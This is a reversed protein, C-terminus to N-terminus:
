STLSQTNKDKWVVVSEIMERANQQGTISNSGLMASLETLREEGHLFRVGTTMRGGRSEKEVQLHVDGFAALQPLHTVCLVQHNQAVRWLKEGVVRGVRGGIGVDIEDFILIPVEDVRSLVTKLALMLRATEGGSAVRSLPRLPEGPNTAVMFEVRDLGTADFALRREGVPAGDATEIQRIAVAFRTDGMRLADLEAEVQQSLQEGAERRRQSMAAGLRGIETLLQVEEAELHDIQEDANQLAALKAAAEEGFAIVDEITDGYKRKLNHLLALREEVEALRAPSYEVGELYSLLAVSLEHAQEVLLDAQEAMQAIESDFPAVKGMQHAAEGLLDGAGPLDGEEGSLAMRSSQLSSIIQEAHTLRQRELLLSEEEGPQLYSAQIENVQYALLDIMQVRQRQGQRWAQRDRRVAEVRRVLDHMQQREAELGAYHDLLNIHEKVRLLTLHDGQGHIDVLRQSLRRVIDLSVARGNVRAINRGNSRLERSLLLEGEEGELGEAILLESIAAMVPGSLSFTAEVVARQSGSRLWEPVARAGLVANVADVIISKGAGTEGTVVNFHPHFRVDLREIIAFNEVHLDVLM